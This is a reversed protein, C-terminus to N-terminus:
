PELGLAEAIVDIELPTTPYGVLAGHDNALMGTRVYRVGDNVTGRLVRVGLVDEIVRAEEDTLDPSALVGRDTAIALSGVVGVGGITGRRVPTGLARSIQELESDRFEPHVVAGYSNALIVNGLATLRVDLVHTPLDSEEVAEVEAPNVISPLLVAEGNGAMFVGILRSGYLSVEVAKASLVEELRSRFRKATGTPVFAARGVVRAFIGLGPSGELKAREIPLDGRL